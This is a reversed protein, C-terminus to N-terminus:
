SIFQLKNDKWRSATVKFKIMQRLFKNNKELGKNNSIRVKSQEPHM